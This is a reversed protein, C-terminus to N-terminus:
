SPPSCTTSRAATSGAPRCGLRLEQMARDIAQEHLGAPLHGYTRRAQRQAWPRAERPLTSRRASRHTSRRSAGRPRATWASPVCAALGAPPHKPPHVSPDPIATGRRRPMPREGRPVQAIKSFKKRTTLIASVQGAGLRSPSGPWSRSRARRRARPRISRRLRARRARLRRAARPERVRGRGGRQVRAQGYAYLAFPLLSGVTVLAITAAAQLPQPPATPLTGAVLALPLVVIAAAAMQVATVAVADRGELLRTQAVITLASLVAAALM